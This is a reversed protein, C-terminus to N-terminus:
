EIEVYELIKAALEALSTRFYKGNHLGAIKRGEPIGLDELQVDLDKGFKEFFKNVTAPAILKGDKMLKSINNILGNSPIGILKIDGNTAQHIHHNYRMIGEVIAEVIKIVPKQPTESDESKEGIKSGPKQSRVLKFLELIAQTETMGAQLFEVIKMSEELELGDQFNELNFTKVTEKVSIVPTNIMKGFDNLNTSVQIKPPNVFLLEDFSGLYKMTEGENDHALSKQIVKICAANGFHNQKLIARLACAYFSRGKHPSGDAKEVNGDDDYAILTSLTKGFRRKYENRVNQYFGESYKKNNSTIAQVKVSQLYKEQADVILRAPALTPRIYFATADDATRKKVVGCFGLMFENIVIMKHEIIGAEKHEHRPMGQESARLGTLNLIGCAITAPNDSALCELSQKIIESIDTKPINITNKLEGDELFGMKKQSSKARQADLERKQELSLVLMSYASCQQIETDGVTENLASNDHKIGRFHNKYDVLYNSITAVTFNKKFNALLENVAETIESITQLSFIKDAFKQADEKIKSAM